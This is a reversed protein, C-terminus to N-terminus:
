LYNVLESATQERGKGKGKGERDLHASPCPKTPVTPIPHHISKTINTTKEM